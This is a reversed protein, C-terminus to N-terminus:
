KMFCSISRSRHYRPGYYPWYHFEWVCIFASYLPVGPFAHGWRPQFFKIRVDVFCIDSFCDREQLEYVSERFVTQSTDLSFHLSFPTWEWFIFKQKQLLETKELAKQKSIKTSKSSIKWAKIYIIQVANSWLLFQLHWFSNMPGSIELQPPVSQWLFGDFFENEFFERLASFSEDIRRRMKM